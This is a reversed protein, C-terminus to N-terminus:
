TSFTARSSSLLSGQGNHLIVRAGMTTAARRTEPRGAAKTSLDLLLNLIPRRFPQILFRRSPRNDETVRRLDTM